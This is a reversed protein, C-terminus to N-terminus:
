KDLLLYGMDWGWQPIYKTSHLTLSLRNRKTKEQPWIIMILSNIHHKLCIKPTAESTNACVHPQEQALATMRFSIPARYKVVVFIVFRKDHVCKKPHVTFYMFKGCFRLLIVDDFPFIKWTVPEKHPSNVPSRHIGREFALSASSKHKRQDAGSYVSSYVITLSTIQSAMTSM